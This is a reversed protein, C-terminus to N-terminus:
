GMSLFGVDLATLTPKHKAHAIKHLHLKMAIGSASTVDIADVIIDAWEVVEDMNKESLGETFIKVKIFPNIGLLNEAHFEAKNQGINEKFAHQRNMNTLDYEGNDALIFNTVGARALAEICAEVRLAM